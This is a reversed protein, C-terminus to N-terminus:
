QWVLNKVGCEVGRGERGASVGLTVNMMPVSAAVIYRQVNRM